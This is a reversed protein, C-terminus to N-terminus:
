RFQLASQRNQIPPRRFSSALHMKCHIGISPNVYRLRSVHEEPYVVDGRIEYEM